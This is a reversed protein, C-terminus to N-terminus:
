DADKMAGEQDRVVQDLSKQAIEAQNIWYRTVKLHRRFADREKKLLDSLRVIELCLDNNINHFERIPPSPEMVPPSSYLYTHIPSEKPSIDIDFKAIAQEAEAQLLKNVMTLVHQLRWWAKRSMGVPRRQCGVSFAAEYLMKFAEKSDAIM